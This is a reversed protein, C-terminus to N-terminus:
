NLFLLFKVSSERWIHLVLGMSVCFMGFLKFLFLLVFERSLPKNEYNTNICRLIIESYHYFLKFFFPLVGKLSLECPWLMLKSKIKLPKFFSLSLTVQTKCAAREFCYQLGLHNLLELISKELQFDLIFQCFQTQDKQMLFQLIWLIIGITTAKTTQIKSNNPVPHIKKRRLSNWTM